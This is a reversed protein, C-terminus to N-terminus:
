NFLSPPLHRNVYFGGKKNRPAVIYDGTKKDIAGQWHCPTGKPIYSVTGAKWDATTILIKPFKTLYGAKLLDEVFDDATGYRIEIGVNVMFRESFGKMYDNISEESAFKSSSVMQLVLSLPSIATMRSGDDSLEYIIKEQENDQNQVAELGSLKKILNEM